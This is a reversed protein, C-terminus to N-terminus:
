EEGKPQVGEHAVKWDHACPIRAKDIAADIDNWSEFDCHFEIFKDGLNKERVANGRLWAYRQADTMADRLFQALEGHGDMALRHAHKMLKSYADDTMELGWRRAAHEVADVDARGAGDSGAGVSDGAALAAPEMRLGYVVEDSQVRSAHAWTELRARATFRM